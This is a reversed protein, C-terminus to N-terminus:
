AQTSRARPVAAPSINGLENAYGDVYVGVKGNEYLELQVQETVRAHLAPGAPKRVQKKNKKTTRSAAM